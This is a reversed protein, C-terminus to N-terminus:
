AGLDVVLGRSQFRQNGCDSPPDWSTLTPEMQPYPKGFHHTSVGGLDDMQEYLHTKGGFWGNFFLPKEM